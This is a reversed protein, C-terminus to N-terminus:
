AAGLTLWGPVVTDQEVNAFSIPFGGAMPNPIAMLFFRATAPVGVLIATYSAIEGPLLSSIPWNASISGGINGGDDSWALEVPWDYYFPAVGWNVIQVSIQVDGNRGPSINAALVSFQYGLMRHAALANAFVTPSLDGDFLYAMTIWTAHTRAICEGPPLADRPPSASFIAPQYPPYLEGGMPHQQWFDTLGAAKVQYWFDWSHGGYTDACFSADHFGVNAMLTTDASASAYRLQIPTKHFSAVLTKVLATRNPETMEWTPHSEVEWEGWFGYLGPVIFGIRPDGDYQGALAAFFSTFAELLQPDNYNPCESPDSTNTPVSYQRMEVGADILFQPTGIGAGPFDVYFHLAVQKGYRQAENLASEVSSWDYFYAWTPIAPVPGVPELLLTGSMIGALPLTVWVMSHPFSTVNAKDAGYAVFGRLPNLDLMPADPWPVLPQWGEPVASAAALREDISLPPPLAPNTPMYPEM